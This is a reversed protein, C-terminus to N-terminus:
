SGPSRGSREYSDEDIFSSACSVALYYDALGVLEEIDQFQEFICPRRYFAKLLLEFIGLEEPASMM